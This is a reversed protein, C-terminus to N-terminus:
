FLETQGVAAAPAAPTPRRKDGPMARSFTVATCQGNKAVDFQYRVAAGAGLFRLADAKREPWWEAWRWGANHALKVVEGTDLQLIYSGSPLQKEHTVQGWLTVTGNADVRRSPLARRPAREDILAKLWGKDPKLSGDRQARAVVDSLEEYLERGVLQELVRRTYGDNAERIEETTATKAVVARWRSTHPQASVFGGVTTCAQGPKAGCGKNGCAVDIPNRKM